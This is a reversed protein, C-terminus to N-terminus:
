EISTPPTTKLNLFYEEWVKLSYFSSKKGKKKKLLLSSSYKIFRFLGGGRWLIILLFYKKEEECPFFSFLGLLVLFLFFPLHVLTKTLTRRFMSREWPLFPTFFVIGFLIHQLILLPNYLLFSILGLVRKQM